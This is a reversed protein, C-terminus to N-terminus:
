NDSILEARSSDFATKWAAGNEMGRRKGLRATKWAPQVFNRGECIRTGV